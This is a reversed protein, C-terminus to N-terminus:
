RIWLFRGTSVLGLWSFGVWVRVYSM